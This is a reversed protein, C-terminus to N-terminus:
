AKYFHKMLIATNFFTDHVPADSERSRRMLKSGVVAAMIDRCHLYVLEAVNRRCLTYPSHSFTGDLASPSSKSAQVLVRVEAVQFERAHDQQGGHEM